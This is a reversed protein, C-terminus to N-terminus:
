IRESVTLSRCVPNSLTSVSVTLKIETKILPSGGGFELKSMKSIEHTPDKLYREHNKEIM